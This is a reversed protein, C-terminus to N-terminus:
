SSFVTGAPNLPWNNNVDNLDSFWFYTALGLTNNIYQDDLFVVSKQDGFGFLNSFGLDTIDLDSFRARM